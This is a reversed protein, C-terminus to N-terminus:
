PGCNHFETGRFNFFFFECGIENFQIIIIRLISSSSNKDIMKRKKCKLEGRFFYTNGWNPLIYTHPYPPSYKRKITAVGKLRWSRLKPM